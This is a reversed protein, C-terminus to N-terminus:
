EPRNTFYRKFIQFQTDRVGLRELKSVILSVSHTLLKYQVLDHEIFMSSDTLTDM